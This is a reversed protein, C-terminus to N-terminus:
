LSSLVKVCPRSKRHFAYDKNQQKGPKNQQPTTSAVDGQRVLMDFCFIFCQILSITYIKDVAHINVIFAISNKDFFYLLCVFIM